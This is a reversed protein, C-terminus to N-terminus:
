LGGNRHVKIQISKYIYEYVSIQTPALVTTLKLDGFGEWEGGGGGGCKNLDSNAVTSKDEDISRELSHSMSPPSNSATLFFQPVKWTM